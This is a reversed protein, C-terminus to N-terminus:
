KTGTSGFGGSGRATETLNAVEEIIPQVVPTILLQAIREGDMFAWSDHSTNFLIVGVEGRYDSDITGPSNLVVIGEKLALGSRSRVQAEYGHPVEVALGTPVLVRKGPELVYRRATVVPPNVGDGTTVYESVKGMGSLDAYLDMGASGPTAYQPIKASDRLKKIRLIPPPLNM